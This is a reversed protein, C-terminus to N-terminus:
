DKCTLEDIVFSSSTLVGMSLYTTEFAHQLISRSFSSTLRSWDESSHCSRWLAYRFVNAQTEKPLTRKAQELFSVLSKKSPFFLGIGLSSSLPLLTNNISFSDKNFLASLLSLFRYIQCSFHISPISVLQISQTQGNSLVGTFVMVMEEPIISQQLQVHKDLHLLPSSVATLNM